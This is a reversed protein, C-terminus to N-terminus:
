GASRSLKEWADILKNRVELMLNFAVESKGGALMVDHLEVDEGMVHRDRRSVVTYGMLVQAIEHQQDALQTRGARDVRPGSHHGEMLVLFLAGLNQRVPVVELPLDPKFAAIVAHWDRDREPDLLPVLLLGRFRCGPRRSGM